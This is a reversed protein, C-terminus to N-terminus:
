VGVDVLESPNVTVHMTWYAAGPDNMKSQGIGFVPIDLITWQGSSTSTTSINLTEGSQGSTTSGSLTSADLDCYTGVLAQATAWDTGTANSLVEFVQDRAPVCLLVTAFPNDLSASGTYTLSSSCPAYTGSRMLGDATSKFREVGVCVHSVLADSAGCLAVTGDNVLKLVDGVYIASAYASAVVKRVIPPTLLGPSTLSKVWRFGPTAPQISAM